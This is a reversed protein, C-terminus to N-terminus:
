KEKPLVIVIAFKQSPLCIQISWDSKRLVLMNRETALRTLLKHVYNVVRSDYRVQFYGM